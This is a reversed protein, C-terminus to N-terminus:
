APFTVTPTGALPWQKNDALVEGINGGIKPVPVTAIGTVTTGTAPDFLALEFDVQVGKNTWMFEVLGAPDELDQLIGLDLFYDFGAVAEGPSPECFTPIGTTTRTNADVFAGSVVCSYETLVPASGTHVGFSLTAKDLTKQIFTNSM